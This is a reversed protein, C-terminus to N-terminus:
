IRIRSRTVSVYVFLSVGEIHTNVAFYQEKRHFNWKFERPIFQSNYLLCNKKHMHKSDIIVVLLWTTYYNFSRSSYDLFLASSASLLNFNNFHSFIHQYSTPQPLPPPPANGKYFHKSGFDTMLTKQTYAFYLSVLVGAFKKFWCEVYIM